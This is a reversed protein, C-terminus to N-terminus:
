SSSLYVIIVTRFPIVHAYMCTPSYYPPDVENKSVYDGPVRVGLGIGDM